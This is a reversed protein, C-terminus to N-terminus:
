QCLWMTMCFCTVAGYLCASAATSCASGQVPQTAPCESSNEYPRTAAGTQWDGAKFGPFAGTHQVRMYTQTDQSATTIGTLPGPTFTIGLPPLPPQSGSAHAFYDIANGSSCPGECLMVYGGTDPTLFINETSSIDGAL